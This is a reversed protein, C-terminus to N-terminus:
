AGWRVLLRQRRRARAAVGRRIADRRLEAELDDDLPARGGVARRGVALGDGAGSGDPATRLAM